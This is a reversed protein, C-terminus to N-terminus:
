SQLVEPKETNGWLKVTEKTKGGGMEEIVIAFRDESRRIKAGTGVKWKM